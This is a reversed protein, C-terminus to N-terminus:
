IAVPAVYGGSTPQTFTDGAIDESAEGYYDGAGSSTLNSSVSVAEGGFYVACTTVMIQNAIVYGRKEDIITGVKRIQNVRDLILGIFPKGGTLRVDNSTKENTKNSNCRRPASSEWTTRCVRGCVVEEGFM